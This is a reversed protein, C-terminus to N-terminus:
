TTSSPSGTSPSWSCTSAPMAGMAVADFYSDSLYDIGDWDSIVFARSDEAQQKLVYDVLYSHGHCKDGNWSNFSVMVTLVGADIAPYYPAIHLREFNPNASVRTDGQDIGETTGGDGSGTSSAPLGGGDDGLDGQLGRVFANRFLRLRDGPGRLLERLHAGVPQNRAVALTPAFTWDVGTALIERATVRAIRELLDPDDPPAWASTTRSYPPAASTTTATSRMSGTSSPFPWTNRTRRWPRRMWYADNMEVWDNVPQNDGPCSGGGSLVSGIHYAKVQEPEIVMRETQVMQGIKQALTMRGM